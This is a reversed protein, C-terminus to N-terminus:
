NIKNIFINLKQKIIVVGSRFHGLEPRWSGVQVCLHSLALLQPISEAAAAVTLTTKWSIVGIPPHSSM